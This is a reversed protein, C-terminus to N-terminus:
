LWESAGPWWWRSSSSSSVFWRGWEGARGGMRGGVWRGQARHGTARLTSGGSLLLGGAVRRLRLQGLMLLCAAPRATRRGLM